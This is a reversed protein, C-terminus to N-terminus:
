RCCAPIEARLLALARNLKVLFEPETDVVFRRPHHAWAALTRQDIAAAMEATEVRAGAAHYGHERTASQMHIVTSYRALEREETTGLEDFYEAATGPWYALGDLTGRDCVILGTTPEEIALRQLEVQVRSIARQSARRASTTGLRPFGGNWLMSAVEPLLMVHRCTELRLVELVATKGAGPGGTLVIIKPVHVADCNCVKSM